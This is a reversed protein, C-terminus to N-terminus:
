RWTRTSPKRRTPIGFSIEMALGNRASKMLDIRIDQNRIGQIVEELPERTRESPYLNLDPMQIIRSLNSRSLVAQEVQAIQAIAFARKSDEATQTPMIRLVAKSVYVKPILLTSAIAIVVGAACFGGAFKVYTAANTLRMELVGRSVDFLTHWGPRVDELLAAFEAEYRKRWGAPYLRAAFSVWRKM